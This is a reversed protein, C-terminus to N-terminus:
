YDYELYYHWGNEEDTDFDYLIQCLAPVTDFGGFYDPNHCAIELMEDVNARTLKIFKCADKEINKIFSLHNILDWFKRAYWVETIGESNYWEPEKFAKKTRAKYIYIDLGM